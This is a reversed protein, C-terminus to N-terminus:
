AKGYAAEEGRVTIYESLANIKGTNKIERLEKYIEEIDNLMLDRGGLGYIKNIMMPQNKRGYLASKFEMFLPGGEAGVSDARDMIAVAKVNSLADALENYPFPRFIRPKLLGVKEGRARMADIVTKVTGAASNMIVMVVEADDMYYEEFYISGRGSIKKYEKAIDVIVKRSNKMAEAQARKHEMFYDQLDLAGYTVPHEVDLLPHTAKYEGIFDRVTKDDLLELTDIAHSTTFGDMCCMVPLRVDMQEGIRVAQILNDYAEQANEAYIQIWGSDRAGMSDSHDGHINIPASLARNVCALIVPFRMGAAIYLMEWMYALGQSSTATMVRGGAAAAGICASMASHESEAAILETDVLGDAVYESFQEIVQTSPTIPYAACVDPNIQRMATALAINGTLAVLKGM